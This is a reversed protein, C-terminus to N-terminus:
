KNFMFSPMFDERSVWNRTRKIYKYDKINETLWKDPKVTSGQAELLCHGSEFLNFIDQAKVCVFETGDPNVNMYWNNTSEKGFGLISNLAITSVKYGSKPISPDFKSVKLDIWCAPIIEGYRIGVIDGKVRNEEPRLTKFFEKTTFWYFRDKPDKATIGYTERLRNVVFIEQEDSLNFSDDQNYNVVRNPIGSLNLRSFYTKM